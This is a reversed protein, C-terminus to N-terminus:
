NDINILIFKLLKKLSRIYFDSADIISEYLIRTKKWGSRIEDNDLKVNEMISLIVNQAAFSIIEVVDKYQSDSFIISEYAKIKEIKEMDPLSNEPIFTLLKSTLEKIKESKAIFSEIKEILEKNSIYKRKNKIIDSINKLFINKNFELIEIKSLPIVKTGEIYAGGLDPLFVPSDTVTLEREFWKKFILMKQDTYVTKGNTAKTIKLPLHNLYKFSLAESTTFFDSITLFRNEFFAGRFHTMRDPFSLDLGFLIISRSGIIRAVDFATTSVSGGAALVGRNENDPEFFKAIPFISSGIFYRDPAAVRLLKYYVSSDTVVICDDFSEGELYKYNWFQPDITVVIDPSIGKNKLYKFSTDVAIIIANRQADKIFDVSKELTPGGAVVISTAGKAIDKLDKISNSGLYCPLNFIFNSSWIKQFRSFTANNMDKRDLIYEMYRQVEKYYDQNFFYTARHFYYRIRKTPITQIFDGLQEKDPRLFLKFNECKFIEIWDFYKLSTFFAKIDAEIYIIYPKIINKNEKLLVEYLIRPIYGLGSGFVIVVDLEEKDNLLFDVVRKAESLPDYKSHAYVSNIKITPLGNKSLEIEYLQDKFKEFIPKLESLFSLNDSLFDM